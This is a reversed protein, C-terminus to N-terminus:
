ARLVQVAAPVCLEVLPHNYGCGTMVRICGPRELEARSSPLSSSHSAHTLSTVPQPESDGDLLLLSSHGPAHPDHCAAPALPM